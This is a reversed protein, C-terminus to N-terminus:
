VRCDGCRVPNPVRSDKAIIDSHVHYGPYSSNLTNGCSACNSSTNNTSATLPELHILDSNIKKDGTPKKFGHLDYHTPNEKIYSDWFNCHDCNSTDGMATRNCQEWRYIM